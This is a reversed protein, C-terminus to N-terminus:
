IPTGNCWIEYESIDIDENWILAYGGTDIRVNKFFAPNKLPSFMTKNLLPTVDYKRKENNSFRVVLTHNEVTDVSKITPYKMQEGIGASSTKQFGTHEVNGFAGDSLGSGM